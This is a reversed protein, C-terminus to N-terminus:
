KGNSLRKMLRIADFPAHVKADNDFYVFVPRMKGDPKSGILKADKPQQGRRWREIRGAWWEIERDSYGSVYLKESGHLRIYVLDATLDETYPWKGATDAFVFAINNERLLSFFEPVLFSPHRVELAHDLPRSRDVTLWARTKLKQDHKRGLRAAAATDRPLLNFFERLRKEDWGLNPPLQWLIPGLKERLALVGSAFFNALPAKVDRLKKMHTIFRPGKVSFLFDAPTESYWRQYSSPRQLSYFSGNIEISNFQRSAFELERRQALDEPYFKGRWGAYRWGSIGIRLQSPRPKTLDIGAQSRRKSDSEAKRM